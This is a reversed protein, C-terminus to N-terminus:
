KTRSENKQRPELLKLLMLSRRNFMPDSTGYKLYMGIYKRAQLIDPKETYIRALMFYGIVRTSDVSVLREAFYLASDINSRLLHYDALGRLIGAHRRNLRYGRKLAKYSRDLRGLNAYALALNSLLNPNYSQLQVAKELEDVAKEYSGERLYISGLLNHYDSSFKNPIVTNLIQRATQIDNRALADHARFISIEDPFRLGIIQNLSDVKRDDNLDRYYDRLTVLSSFAGKRDLNLCYKHYEISRETQLNTMLFFLPAMIWLVTVTPLFRTLARCRDEDLLLIFLLTLAFGCTSFLDWDRAMGLTGDIVFLFLLGASGILALFVTDPRGLLTRLRGASLLLYLLILPSLLFLENVMDVFHPLSFMTYSPDVPSGKLVALFIGEFYLDTTYRYIFGIVGFLAIVALIAWAVKRRRRYFELAARSRFIL